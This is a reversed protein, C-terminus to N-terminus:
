RKEQRLTELDHFYPDPVGNADLHLETPHPTAALTRAAAAQADSARQAALGESYPNPASYDEGSSAARPAPRGFHTACKPCPAVPLKRRGDALTKMCCAKGTSENIRPTFAM